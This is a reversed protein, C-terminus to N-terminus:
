MVKMSTISHVVFNILNLDEFFFATIKSTTGPTEFFAVQVAVYCQLVCSKLRRAWMASLLIHYGLHCLVRNSVCVLGVV